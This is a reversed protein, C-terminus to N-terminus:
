KVTFPCHANHIAFRVVIVTKILVITGTCSLMHISIPKTFYVQCIQLLFRIIYTTNKDQILKNSSFSNTCIM